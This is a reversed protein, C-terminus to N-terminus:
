QNSAYHALNVDETFGSDIVVPGGNIIGWSDIKAIDGPEYKCDKVAGIVKRFFANSYFKDFNIKNQTLEGQNTRERNIKHSFAGGLASIFERWPMGTLNGFQVRTMPEAEQAVLWKGEPDSEFIKPFLNNAYESTCANIETMNQAIGGANKAAKLVKGNPIRFVMRGQGEGIKSGSFISWVYSNLQSLDDINKLTDFNFVPQNLKPSSSSGKLNVTSDTFGEELFYAKIAADIYAELVKM